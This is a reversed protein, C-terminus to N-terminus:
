STPLIRQVRIALNAEESTCTEVLVDQKFGKAASLFLEHDSKSLQQQLHGGSMNSLAPFDMPRDEYVNWWKGVLRRVAELDMHDEKGTFRWPKSGPACYHVVKVKELEPVNEPHWWLMPMILNYNLPLPSFIENFFANLSDHLLVDFGIIIGRMPTSQEAFPTLPTTLLANMMQDFTLKSPEFVFMGANFYKPPPSGLHQPWPIRDPCQQCYKVKYQVSHSWTCECFCDPVAYFRGNPLDMLHDLNDYVAVDADLYVMKEFDELLWIRLKSYNIVYHAAAYRFSESGNLKIPEIPHILCGHLRLLECHDEPVDDLVAVVLPYASKVRRLSKALAVAGKVYDGDGALFTVYACRRPRSSTLSSLSPAM